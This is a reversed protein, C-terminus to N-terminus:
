NLIIFQCAIITPIIIKKAKRYTAFITQFLALDKERFDDHPAPQPQAVFDFPFSYNIDAFM